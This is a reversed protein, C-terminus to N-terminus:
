PYLKENTLNYFPKKLQQKKSIAKALAIIAMKSTQISGNMFGQFDDSCHEGAFFMNGVPKSVEEGYLMWQGPKLSSYSCKALPNNTWDLLLFDAPTTSVMAKSGKYVTKFYDLYKTRLSEFNEKNCFKMAVDGGFYFTYTSEKITENQLQSSDFGNHIVNNFLYGQYGNQRWPKDNFKQIHKINTGYGLDQICSKKNETMNKIDNEIGYYIKGDYYFTDDILQNVRIDINFEKL